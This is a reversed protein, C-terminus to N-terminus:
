GADLGAGLTERVQEEDDMEVWEGTLGAAVLWRRRGRCELEIAYSVSLGRRSVPIAVEGARVNEDGIRCQEITTSGPLQLPASVERGTDPDTRILRGAAMDIVLLWPRDQSRAAARTTNDYHGIAEIADRLRARSLPRQVRLVVAATALSLILLVVALEVMSFARTRM